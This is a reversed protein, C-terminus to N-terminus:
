SQRLRLRSDAIHKSGFKEELLAWMDEYGEDFGLAWVGVGGLDQQEAFDYKIGLSREDELFIQRTIGSDDIYSFWGVKGVDDWGTEKVALQKSTAYTSAHAKPYVFYSYPYGWRNYAREYYGSHRPVKVGATEVPYDYGYWPVGLILKEKPMVKLFDEVATAVDYWYKGEKHGYLPSTPMVDESGTTAFDYAMMFIGDSNESIAKVDYLKPTKVASAYVSVTVQSDPDSSKMATNLITVFKTFKARYHTDPTGMYEVDINIGDLGRERVLKEIESAAKYQGSENDLIAEINEADMQTVTLVVKTGNDHAKKFLQTANDSHFAKYGPSDTNVSGDPLIEVDFYALTTLVEFNVNELDSLTWYPAFGFVEFDREQAVATPSKFIQNLPSLVGSLPQYNSTISSFFTICSFLLIFFGLSKVSQKLYHSFGKPKKYSYIYSYRQM